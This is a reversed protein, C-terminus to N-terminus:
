VGSSINDDFPDTKSDLFILTDQNDVYNLHVGFDREFIGNIRTLDTVLTSMVSLKKESDTTENGTLCLKSFQGGVTVAFRYTRLINDDANRGYALTGRQVGAINKVECTFTNKHPNNNDKNFVIYLGKGKDAPNIYVTKGTGSLIMGHFGKPTIDFRIAAAPDEIGQGIYSHLQPYRAALAVSMVPSEVIKFHELTGKANPMSIVVSSKGAAIKKASPATALVKRLRDEDLRFTKHAPPIFLPQSGATINQLLVSNSVASWFANKKQAAVQLHICLFILWVFPIIKKIM